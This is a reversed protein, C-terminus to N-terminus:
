ATTPVTVIRARRHAPIRATGDDARLLYCLRKKARMEIQRIGENSLGFRDGIERLTMVPQDDLGFRLTLVHREMAGLRELARRLRRSRDERLLEQEASPDSSTLWELPTLTETGPAAESLSM